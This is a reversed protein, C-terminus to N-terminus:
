GLALISNSTKFPYNLKHPSYLITFSTKDDKSYNKDLCLVYNNYINYCNNATQGNKDKFKNNEITAVVGRLYYEKAGHKHCLRRKNSVITEIGRQFYVNQLDSYVTEVNSLKITKKDHYSYFLVKENQKILIVSNESIYANCIESFIKTNNIWFDGSQDLWVEIKDSKFFTVIDKKYEKTTHSNLDFIIVIGDWQLIYAVEKVVCLSVLFISSLYLLKYPFLYILKNFLTDKNFIFVNKFIFKFLCHSLPINTKVDYCLDKISYKPARRVQTSGYYLKRKLYAGHIKLDANIRHIILKVSTFKYVLEPIFNLSIFKYSIITKIIEQKTEDNQAKVWKFFPISMLYDIKIATEVYSKLEDDDKNQYYLLRELETATNTKFKYSKELVKEASLDNKFLEVDIPRLIEKLINSISELINEYSLNKEKVNVNVVYNDLQSNFRKEFSIDFINKVIDEETIAESITIAPTKGINEKVNEFYDSLINREELRVQSIYSRSAIQKHRSIPIPPLPTKIIVPKFNFILNDLKVLEKETLLYLLEKLNKIQIYKGPIIKISEPVKEYLELPSSFNNSIFSRIKSIREFNDVILPQSPFSPRIIDSFFIGNQSAIEKISSITKSYLKHFSYDKIITQVAIPALSIIEDYNARCNILLHKVEEYESSSLYRKISECVVNQLKSQDIYFVGENIIRNVLLQKPDELITTDSICTHLQILNYLDINKLLEDLNENDLVVDLYSNLGEFKSCGLQLLTKNGTIRMRQTLLRKVEYRLIDFIFKEVESSKWFSNVLRFVTKEKLQFPKGEEYSLLKGYETLLEYPVVEKKVFNMLILKGKEKISQLALLDWIRQEDEKEINSLLINGNVYTEEELLNFLFHQLQPNDDFYKLYERKTLKPKGIFGFLEWELGEDKIVETSTLLLEKEAQERLDKYRPKIPKEIFTVKKKRAKRKEPEVAVIESPVIKAVTLPQEDRLEVASKIYYFGSSPWHTFWIKLEHRSFTETWEKIFKDVEDENTVPFQFYKSTKDLFSGYVSELSKLTVHKKVNIEWIGTLTFILSAKVIPKDLTKGSLVDFINDVTPWESYQLPRNYWVFPAYIPPCASEKYVVKLVVQKDGPIVVGCESENNSIKTKLNTQDSPSIRLSSVM